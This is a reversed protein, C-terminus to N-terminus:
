RTYGEILPALMIPSGDTEDMEATIVADDALGKLLTIRAPDVGPIEMAVSFALQRTISELWRSPIALTQSLTGVDQVQHHVWITLFNTSVSPVPWLTLTPSLNKEFFYDTTTLAQSDKNPQTAYFDRSGPTMTLDSVMTTADLQAALTGVSVSVRIYSCTSATDLSFWNGGVALDTYAVTQVSTWSAGDDSVEVLVNGTPIATLTILIRTLTSESDLTLTASTATSSYSGSAYVPKSHLVNLVSLTGSPLNYKAKGAILPIYYRAVCWLNLGRNALHLLLMFLSEKAAEVNEPTQDSAKLGCRRFAHDLLKDTTITTQGITGSTAM